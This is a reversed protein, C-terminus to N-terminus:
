NEVVNTIKLSKFAAAVKGWQLLAVLQAAGNLSSHLAKAIACVSALPETDEPAGSWQPVGTM